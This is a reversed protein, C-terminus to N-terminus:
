LAPPDPRETHRQPPETHEPRDPRAADRKQKELFDRAKDTAADIKRDTSDGTRAKVAEAAKDIAGAIKDENGAVAKKAKDVFDGIGM